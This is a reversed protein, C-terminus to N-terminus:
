SDEIKLDRSVTPILQIRVLRSLKHIQKEVQSSNMQVIPLNEVNLASM